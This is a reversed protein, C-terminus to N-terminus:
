CLGAVVKSFKVFRSSENGVEIDLGGRFLAWFGDNGQCREVWLGLGDFVHQFLVFELFFWLFENLEGSLYEYALYVDVLLFFFVNTEFLVDSHLLVFDVFGPFEQFIIFTLKFQHHLFLCTICVCFFFLDVSSLFLLFSYSSLNLLNLLLLILFIVLYLLESIIQHLILLM